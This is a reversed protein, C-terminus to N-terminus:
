NHDHGDGIERSTKKRAGWILYESVQNKTEKKKRRGNGGSGYTHKTTVLRSPCARLSLPPCYIMNQSRPGDM